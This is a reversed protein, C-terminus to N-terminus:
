KVSILEVEFILTSNPPIRGRGREGYGLEPPVFLQWKAGEKMLQLGEIWGKIVGNVQFTAPQGRKYSSDFETGDILTGKYNVTVTDEEKPTKGSGESLVKYQLGSPLTKVGEKKANEALFAKGDALNRASQEEFEKQRAAMVRKQLEMVTVRIEEPNMQPEKGALSDKIGSAYIDLNIDIGQTKLSQGFQYGLSYSEKDKQDKLELKEEAFSVSFLLGISLIITLIYKMANEKRYLM